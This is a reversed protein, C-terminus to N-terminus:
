LVILSRLYRGQGDVNQPSSVFGEKVLYENTTGFIQHWLENATERIDVRHQIPTLKSSNREFNDFVERALPFINTLIIDALEKIITSIESNYFVPINISMIDDTENINIYELENLFRSLNKEKESLQSYKINKNTINCILNGCEDAIERNKSDLVRNYAENVKNFTSASDISKQVHRFVRFMDKRLGNSDGFSNFIFGSSRYNNSSCLIKNSHKEVLENDEYAIIIYDRGGPQQKSACFTDKETFFEFAFGDFIIDCIVHYLIREYSHFKSCKLESVNKYLIDKMEIIKRGIIEGSNNIYNEMEIIDKELFVPFKVRYGNNKIEIANILELNNILYEIAEEKINLFEAIKFKSITFTENEAILYLIESVYEESLVYAPNYSDYEGTEGFFYFNLKKNAM